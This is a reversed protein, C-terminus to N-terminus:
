RTEISDPVLIVELIVKVLQVTLSSWKEQSCQGGAAQSDKLRFGRGFPISERDSTAPVVVVM